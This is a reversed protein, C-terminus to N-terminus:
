APVADGSPPTSAEGGEALVSGFQAVKDPSRLRLLVLYVIGLGLWGLAVWISYSIPKPPRPTISWYITLGCVVIAAVPLVVDLALSYAVASASRMRWFYTMGGLAVLIYTGLIGFTATTAMFAFYTFPDNWTGRALWSVLIVTLALSALIAVWPTKFRPHTWGFVRPLGGERSM